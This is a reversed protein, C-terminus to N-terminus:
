NRRSQSRTSSFGNPLGIANVKFSNKYFSPAACLKCPVEKVEISKVLYEGVFECESCKFDFFPM